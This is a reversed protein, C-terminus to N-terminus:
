WSRRSYLMDKLTRIAESYTKADIKAERSWFKRSLEEAKNQDSFVFWCISDTRQVDILKLRSAYLFATEYIDRTQYVDQGM